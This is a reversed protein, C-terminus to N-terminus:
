ENLPGHSPRLPGRWYGKAEAVPVNGQYFRLMKLEGDILRVQVMFERSEGDSKWWYRAPQTPSTTTRPPSAQSPKDNSTPHTGRPAKPDVDYARGPNGFGDVRLLHVRREAHGGGGHCAGVERAYFASRCSVDNIGPFERRFFPPTIM